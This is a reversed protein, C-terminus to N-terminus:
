DPTPPEVHDVVLLEVPGNASELKLGLQEQLATFVSVDDPPLGGYELRFAYYGLLGTRDFVARGAPSHLSDALSRLTTAGSEVTRGSDGGRRWECLKSDAEPLAARGVSASCDIEMPRLQLGLRGDPRAVVLNYIPREQTELHAAFKFRDALLARLMTQKQEATPEFTARADIDFRESNVWTPAGLLENTRTPYATIILISLPVNVMTWRAGKGGMAAGGQPGM